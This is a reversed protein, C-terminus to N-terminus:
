VLNVQYVDGREISRQVSEIAAAYGADDWSRSWEGVAFSGGLAPPSAVRCAAYPLRCPEPPGPGALGYGLYLDVARGRAEERLYEEIRALAGEPQWLELM